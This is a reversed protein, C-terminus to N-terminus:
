RTLAEFFAARRDFSEPLCRERVLAANDTRQQPHALYHRLLRSLQEPGEYSVIGLRELGEGKDSIQFCGLVGLDYARNNIFGNRRMLEHHDNLNIRARAYLAPLQEYDVQEALIRQPPLAGSWGQGAVRYDFEAGCALLDAVVRRYRVHDYYNNGVFLIDLDPQAPRPAFLRPDACQPLCHCPPRVDPKVRRWFPESAVCVAGYANLEAPTRLEPHSIVWVISFQGPQPKYGALGVIAVAVDADDPRRYWDARADIRCTHGRRELALSLRRAFPGDGGPHEATPACIKIAFRL